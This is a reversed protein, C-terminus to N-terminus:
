GIATWRRELHHRYSIPDIGDKSHIMVAITQPDFNAFFSDIASDSKLSVGWSAKVLPVTSPAHDVADYGLFERVFVGYLMYESFSPIRALAVQWHIGTSAEIRHQLAKVTERNWCIMNGVHSRYESGQQSLGLVRRATETWRRNRDDVFPVDLLGVKGDVVLNDRDFQRFFAVDSDCFVLTREPIVEIAAIKLIQQVIWGRVPPAKLSLWFGRRGPM